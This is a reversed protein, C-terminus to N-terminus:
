SRLGRSDELVRERFEKRAVVLQEEQPESSLTEVEQAWRRLHNALDIQGARHALGARRQIEDAAALVRRRNGARIATWRRECALSECTTRPRGGAEGVEPIPHTDCIPCSVYSM